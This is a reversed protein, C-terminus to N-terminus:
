WENNRNHLMTKDLWEQRKEEKKEKRKNKLEKEYLYDIKKSMKDIKKNLEELKYDIEIIKNHDYIEYANHYYKKFKITKIIKKLNM